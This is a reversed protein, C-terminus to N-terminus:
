HTITEDRAVRRVAVHAQDEIIVGGTSIIVDQTELSVVRNPRSYDAKKATTSVQVYDAWDLPLSHCCARERQPM